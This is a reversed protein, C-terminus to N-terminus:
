SCVALLQYYEHLHLEQKMVKLKTEKRREFCLHYTWSVYFLTKPVIRVARFYAVLM